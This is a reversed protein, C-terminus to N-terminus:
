ITRKNKMRDSEKKAAIEKLKLEKNVEIKKNELKM